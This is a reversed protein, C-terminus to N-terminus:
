KLYLYLNNGHDSCIILLTDKNKIVFKYLKKIVQDMENLKDKM